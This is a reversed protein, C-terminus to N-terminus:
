LRERVQVDFGDIGVIVADGVAADDVEVSVVAHRHDTDGTERRRVEVEHGSRFRGSRGEWRRSSLPRSRNSFQRFM